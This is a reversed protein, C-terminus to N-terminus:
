ASKRQRTLSRRARPCFRHGAGGAGDVPLYVGQNVCRWNGAGCPNPFDCRIRARHHIGGCEGRVAIIQGQSRCYRLAALTDATEGSQSIFLALGGPQMAAERYRFESAIDVEVPLRALQEFWYKAVCGAYYATGCAVITLKSITALDVALKPLEIVGRLASIYAGLTNAIADPQEYIEKAMFHRHNGKDIMAASVSVTEKKRQVPQGAANFFEAGARTLVVWDGEDLYSLTQTFPSLALADSGLFMEGKGYGVALPSGKRAGIM